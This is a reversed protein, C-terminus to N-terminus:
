AEAKQEAKAKDYEKEAYEEFAQLAKLLEDSIFEAATVANYIRTGAEIFRDEVVRGFYSAIPMPDEDDYIEVTDIAGNGDVDGVYLNFDGNGTVDVAIMDIDGDHNNDMLAVDAMQDGDLDILLEHFTSHVLMPKLEPDKRMSKKLEKLTGM